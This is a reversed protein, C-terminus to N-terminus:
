DRVNTIREGAEPFVDQDHEIGDCVFYYKCNLCEKKKIYTNLRNKKAADFMAKVKDQKYEAPDIAQDYVAINWDKLDYIHQYYGVVYKEYGKMFCFPIYRVNIEEINLDDIAKHIYPSVEKYNLASQQKADDWYNLPLFNVQLPKLENMMTVFQDLHKYNLETITCNVRVVMDLGQANKIAKIINKYAHTRGVLKDHSDKDYGHVSFLIERLGYEYSKQIFEKKAFKFGNSLCSIYLGKDTCYDLIKFWHKHISSEGGSLDVETIGCEILYDIRDKIVDFETKVDLQTKYYCFDCKYNCHTGTDLKARNNIPKNSPILKFTSAQNYM